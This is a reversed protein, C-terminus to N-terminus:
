FLTEANLGFTLTGVVTKSSPDVLPISIQAQYTQTSEDMEVAGYLVANPGAPFVETFKAEDGQWMDSTAESAAVNLGVADTIFAEVIKGGSATVQSRLFDAAPNSLIPTITPTDATGLEAQWAADLGDITAQDIGARAANAASAASVLEPATSLTRMNTEYFATLATQYDQGAAGSALMAFPLAAIIQFKM